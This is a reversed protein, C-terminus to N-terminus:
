FVVELLCSEVTVGPGFTAGFINQSRKLPQNLIEKLVFLVTPSSMNGFEKLIKRSYQLNAEPKFKSFSDLIARGGPHVCWYDISKKITNIYDLSKSINKAIFRPLDSNLTLDFGNDGIKWSLNKGHDNIIHSHFEKISIGPRDNLENKCSVICAACGDSFISNGIIYNPDTNLKMHLSCMEICVVLVKSSPNNECFENATKLAPFAAQCGMFGINIRKVKKNLNFNNIIEIDLGPNYFGTCSVTIIHTIDELSINKSIKHIAEFALESSYKEYIKNRESTSPNSITRDKNKHFLETNQASLRMDGVVLYRQDIGSKKIAQKFLINYRRDNQYHSIFDFFEQQRIKHKPNSTEICNIYAAM